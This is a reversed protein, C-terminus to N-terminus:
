SPRDGSGELERDWYANATDVLEETSCIDAAVGDLTSESVKGFQVLEEGAARVADMVKKVRDPYKRGLLLSFVAPRLLAGCFETHLNRALRECHLLLPDFNHLGPYGCISVLFLKSPFVWRLPHVVGQEDITFHPDLFTVLRDIFIKALATMGDLYIPTALIMMDAVRIREILAAMDDSQICTGPTEAYCNFCGICTNIKKRGLLAIDVEAGKGRCGVLFPTLLMQTNGAEMRPAANVVMIRM